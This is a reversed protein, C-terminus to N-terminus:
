PTCMPLVYSQNLILGDEALSLLNPTIVQDNHFGVDNWGPFIDVYNSNHNFIIFNDWGDSEHSVALSLIGTTPETHDPM